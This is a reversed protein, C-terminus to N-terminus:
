VKFNFEFSKIAKYFKGCLNKWTTNKKLELIKIYSSCTCSGSKCWVYKINKKINNYFSSNNINNNCLTIIRQLFNVEM